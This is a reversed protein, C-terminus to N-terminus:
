DKEKRFFMGIAFLVVLVVLMHPLPVHQINM